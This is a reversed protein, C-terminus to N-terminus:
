IGCSHGKDASREPAGFASKFGSCVESTDVTMNTSWAFKRLQALTQCQLRKGKYQSSWTPRMGWKYGTETVRTCANKPAKIM